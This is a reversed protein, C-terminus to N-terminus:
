LIILLVSLVVVRDGCKIDVAGQYKEAVKRINSLGTGEKFVSEGQFSNEVEILVFDGQRIGTVRIFKDMWVEQGQMKKCACIANDLANSLLICFDIDRVPCPYPLTLSCYVDIGNSKAIGLKKELLIDVVPNGTSCPFSMESIIDQMGGVYDFAEHWRGNQLLERIVTIHNKIDHRFSKTSEYHAKAEEVYQNMFHEQQRLLSLETSYRVNELLKKYATMVCFLSAMGLLQIALMRIHDVNMVHGRSDTTITNGYIVYNIYESVLLILLVPTLLLAAYQSDASEGSVFCREAMRCCYIVALVSINGLLMLPVHMVSQAFPFLFPNLLCLISHVVGGCIQLIEATMVAYLTVTMFDARCVLRGWVVLILVYSLFSELGSNRGAIILLAGCVAFLLEYVLYIKKRLFKTYYYLGTFIQVFGMLYDNLFDLYQEM